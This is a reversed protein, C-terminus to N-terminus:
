ARSRRWSRWRWGAASSRRGGWAAARRPCSLATCRRWDGRGLASDDLLPVLAGLDFASRLAFQATAFLASLPALVLAAASAVAFAAGLRRTPGALTWLVM